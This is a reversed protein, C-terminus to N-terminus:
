KLSTLKYGWERAQAALGRASQRPGSEQKRRGPIVCTAPALAGPFSSLVGLNQANNIKALFSTHIRNTLQHALYRIYTLRNNSVGGAAWTTSPSLRLLISSRISSTICVYM